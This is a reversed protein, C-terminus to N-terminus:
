TSRFSPITPSLPMRQNGRADFNSPDLWKEFAQKRAPWERDLMSFWASDRNRGKIIMHQRFIGEFAFGLRLAARRSPANLADCKWEYRRYGLDEFAHKAMLYMAETAAATRQLKPAYLIHGVEICGHAPTIRLYSAHGMALGSRKDVIGFYLPDESHAKEQLDAHFSARDPFPGYPLYLYLADGEPGRTSECLSSAHADADLPELSVLRGELITRRPWKAAARGVVAGISRGSAPDVDARNRDGSDTESM